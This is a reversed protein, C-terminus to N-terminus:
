NFYIMLENAFQLIEDTTLLNLTNICLVARKLAAQCSIRIQDTQGYNSIWVLYKDCISLFQEKTVKKNLKSCTTAACEAAVQKAIALNNRQM